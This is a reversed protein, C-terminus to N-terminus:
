IQIRDSQRNNLSALWLLECRHRYSGFNTRETLFYILQFALKFGLTVDALVRGLRCCSRNFAVVHVWAIKIRRRVKDPIMRSPRMDPGRSKYLRWHRRSM